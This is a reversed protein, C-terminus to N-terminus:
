QCPFVLLYLQSQLVDNILPSERLEFVQRSPHATTFATHSVLWRSPAKQLAVFGLWQLANFIFCATKGLCSRFDRSTQSLFEVAKVLASFPYIIWSDQKWSIPFFFVWEEGNKVVQNKKKIQWQPHFTDIGAFVQLYLIAMAVERRVSGILVSMPVSM